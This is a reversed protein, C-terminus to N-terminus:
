HFLLRCYTSNFESRNSVLAVGRVDLPYSFVVHVFIAVLVVALSRSLAPEGAVAMRDEAAPQHSCGNLRTNEKKKKSRNEKEKQM